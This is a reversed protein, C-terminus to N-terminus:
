LFGKRRRYVAKLFTSWPKRNIDGLAVGNTAESCHTFKTNDLMVGVHRTDMDSLYFVPIDFRSYPPEVKIFKKRFTKLHPDVEIGTVYSAWTLCNFGTEISNGEPNYPTGILNHLQEDMLNNHELESLMAEFLPFSM